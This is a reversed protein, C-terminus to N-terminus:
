KCCVHFLPRGQIHECILKYINQRKQEKPVNDWVVKVMNDPVIRAQKGMRKASKRKYCNSVPKVKFDELSEQPIADTSTLATGHLCQRKVMRCNSCIESRQFLKSSHTWQGGEAEQSSQEPEHTGDESGPSKCLPTSINNNEINVEACESAVMQEGCSAGEDSGVTTIEGESSVFQDDM